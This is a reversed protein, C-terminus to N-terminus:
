INPEIITRSKIIKMTIIMRFILIKLTKIYLNITDFHKSTHYPNSNFVLDYIKDKIKPMDKQRNMVIEKQRISKFRYQSLFLLNLVEKTNFRYKTM